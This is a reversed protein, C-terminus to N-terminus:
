FRFRMFGTIWNQHSIVKVGNDWTEDVHLPDNLWHHTGTTSLELHDYQVGIAFRNTVLAEVVLAVHWCNGQTREMTYRDGERLLHHDINYAQTYGWDGQLSWVIPPLMGCEFAGRLQGGGYGIFYQQNFTLVDGPMEFPPDLWQNQFKVQEADYAMIDLRQWRFGVIPWVSFPARLPHDLVLFKYTFDLMQGETWRERAFGLDTFDHNARRWDYDEFDGQIYQGAMLWELQVGWTPTERALEFGHWCSNLSFILRSIPSYTPSMGPSTGFEYSTYSSCFARCRYDLTWYEPGPPECFFKVGFDEYGEWAEVALPSPCADSELGSGLSPAVSPDQATALDPAPTPALGAAAAPTPDPTPLREVSPKAASQGQLESYFSAPIHAPPQAPESFPEYQSQARACLLVTAALALVARAYAQRRPIPM